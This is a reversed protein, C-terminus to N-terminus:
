HITMVEGVTLYTYDYLSQVKNFSHRREKGRGEAAFKSETVLSLWPRYIQSVYISGSRHIVGLLVEPLM